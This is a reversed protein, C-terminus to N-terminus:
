EMEDWANRVMWFSIPNCLCEFLTLQISKHEKNFQLFVSVFLQNVFTIIYFDMRLNQTSLYM